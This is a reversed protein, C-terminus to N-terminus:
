AALAKLADDACQVLMEARERVEVMRRETTRTRQSKTFGAEMENVDRQLNTAIGKIFELENRVKFSNEM